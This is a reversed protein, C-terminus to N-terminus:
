TAACEVADAALNTGFVENWDHIRSKQVSDRFYTRASIGALVDDDSEARLKVEFDKVNGTMAEAVRNHGDIIFFYPYVYGTSVLEESRADGTLERIGQTPFLVKPSLYVEPRKESSNKRQFDRVKILILEVVREPAIFTTDIVLDYNKLRLPDVDYLQLFRARESMARERLKIRADDESQYKEVVQSERDYVRRAGHEPSVTLHVSMADRVFWWGMRSDIITPTKQTAISKLEADVEEDVLSPDLEALKNLEWTSLKHRDAISRHRDGGSFHALATLDALQRAVTSKGSGLDGSIAISSIDHNIGM